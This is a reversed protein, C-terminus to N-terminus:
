LHLFEIVGNVLFRLGDGSNIHLPVVEREMTAM